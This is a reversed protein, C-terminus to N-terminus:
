KRRRYVAFGLALVGFIAAYTSPEPVATGSLTIATSGTFFELGVGEGTAAMEPVLTQDISFAFTFFDTDNFVIEDITVGAKLDNMSIGSVEKVLTLSSGSWDAYVDGTGGEFISVKIAALNEDIAKAGALAQAVGDFILSVSDIAAFDFGSIDFEYISDTIYDAGSSYYNGLSIYSYVGVAGGASLPGYASDATDFTIKETKTAAFASGALALALITMIIKKM